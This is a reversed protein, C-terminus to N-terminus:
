RIYGLSRLRELEDSSLADAVEADAPLRAVESRRRWRDLEATLREVVDPRQSAVDVLNLPDSVHDYLEYEPEDTRDRVENHVLRWGDLVLAVAAHRDDTGAATRTHEEAVAPRTIWEAADRIATGDGSTLLPLLSQGQIGDPVGLGSLELLTPMLDITRVTETVVQGPGIRGPAWLLLPVHTLEGYVSQGHWSEGHELFEEGHDGVVALVVEEALGWEALREMLRGIEADMGRISGDYWAKRYAMFADIDVGADELEARTPMVQGRRFPSAIEGRVAAVREAHAARGDPDAWLTDYPARPEFPSHPDFLHLFVFFPTERHQELWPLLRDVFERASKGRMTATRSAAEHLEEFGQHLNTAAGTFNVSSFSITAHGAARYVEALTTAASSLRDPVDRVGHSLAHLSTLISPTSAKTWTAQAMADDFRAGSAGLRRLIPTTAREYGYLSLHDPRITDAMVLIVGRPASGPPSPSRDRVVPSGWLGIVGPEDAVLSLSLTVQRGALAGLEVPTREWRGSTTITRELLTVSGAAGEARGEIRFTAPAATMTGIALDLWPAGPLTLPLHITEPSKTVITEHFVDSLGRWAVGSETEALHEREFVLRVSAIEFSAGAVDSPRLFVRRIASSPRDDEATLRYTRLDDGPLLPTSLAWTEDARVGDLDLDGDGRFEVELTTGSSVQLTIEVAHLRDREGAEDPWETHVMGSTSTTIGRLRGDPVQLQDIGGGSHWAAAEEADDFRWEARPPSATAPTGTVEVGPADMRDVLHLAPAPPAGPGGCAALLALGALGLWRSVGERGAREIIGM